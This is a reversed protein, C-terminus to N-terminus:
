LWNPLNLSVRVWFLTLPPQFAPKASLPSAAGESLEPKTGLVSMLCNVVGTAGAGAAGGGRRAETPMRTHTRTRKPM